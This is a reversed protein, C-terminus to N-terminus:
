DECVEKRSATAGAGGDTTSSRTVAKAGGQKYQGGNCDPSLVKM